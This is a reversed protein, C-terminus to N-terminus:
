NECAYRSGELAAMKFKFVKTDRGFASVKYRHVKSEEIYDFGFLAFNEVTVFHHRDAAYHKLGGDAPDMWARSNMQIQCTRCIPIHSLEILGMDIRERVKGGQLQRCVDCEPHGMWAFPGTATAKHRAYQIQKFIEGSDKDSVSYSNGKRFYRVCGEILLYASTAHDGVDYLTVEQLTNQVFEGDNLMNYLVNLSCSQLEPHMAQLKAASNM